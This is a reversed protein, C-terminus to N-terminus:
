RMFNQVAEDDADIEFSVMGGYGDLYTTANGHSPSSALGAYHVRSVAPHSELMQALRLASDNQRRVRVALTKLGRHLLYCAHPDLSGGLQTVKRRIGAVLPVSGVAVGAVLDSHGNLYKTASHISVDYGWDLPRFNVPSAFTNDIMSVLGHSKAFEAVAGLEGVEILPNTISEVYIAKTTPRLASEWMSPSSADIFDFSIGLDSLLSTVLNHTGGYLCNQALLHDGPCLVSLLASSIAAMGSSTVVADEANELAAMKEQLVIQNPNNSYRIYRVEDESGAYEFMASQFIPMAVAGEVRPNPEGAHILKTDISKSM